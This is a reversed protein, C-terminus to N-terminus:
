PEIEEERMIELDYHQKTEGWQNCKWVAWRSYPSNQTRFIHGVKVIGSRDDPFCGILSDTAAGMDAVDDQAVTEEAILKAVQSKHYAIPATPLIALLGAIAVGTIGVSKIM